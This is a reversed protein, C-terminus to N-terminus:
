PGLSAVKVKAGIQAPRQAVLSAEIQIPVILMVTDEYGYDVISSTGLRQPTPWKIAGATLGAPLQWTVRPPEGSDGPNIWEIHWGKELQFRLGLLLHHGAAIWHDEAILELTGHPIPAAAAHAGAACLLLAAGCTLARCFASSPSRGPMKTEICLGDRWTKRLHHRQSRRLLVSPWLWGLRLKSPKRRPQLRAGEPCLEFVRNKRLRSPQRPKRWGGILEHPLLWNSLHHTATIEVSQQGVLGLLM